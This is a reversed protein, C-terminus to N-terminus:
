KILQYKLYIDIRRNIKRGKKTSNDAKPVKEGYYNCLIREKHVGKKLLLKYFESVRKKSLLFNKEDEGVSDTHGDIVILLSKNKNLKNILDNIIQNNGLNISYSANDFNISFTDLLLPIENSKLPDNMPQFDFQFDCFSACDKITDSQYLEVDDILYYAYLGGQKSFDSPFIYTESDPAFNGIIIYKACNNSVFDGCIKIWDTSNNIVHYNPSQFNPLFPFILRDAQTYFSDVLAIGIKDVAFKYSNSKKIKLSFHYENCPTLRKKLPSIIYERNNKGVASYLYIGVCDDLFDPTGRSANKWIPNVGDKNFNFGSDKILNNKKKSLDNAVCVKESSLDTISDNSALQTFSVNDIFYYAFRNIPPLSSGKNLFTQKMNKMVGDDANPILAKRSSQNCKQFNGIIIYKEGGKANYIEKIEVWDLTDKIFNNHRNNIDPKGMFNLISGKKSLDTRSFCLGIQDTYYGSNNALNVHISVLYKYGAQLPESFKLQLYERSECENPYDSTLILGCFADGEYPKQYGFFNDTANFNSSCFNFYDPTGKISIVGDKLKLTRKTYNDPCKKYLEFSYNLVLNQAKANYLPSIFLIIALFLRM